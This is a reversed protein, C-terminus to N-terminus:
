CSRVMFYLENSLINFLAEPNNAEQSCPLSGKSEM